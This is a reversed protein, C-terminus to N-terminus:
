ASNLIMNLYKVLCNYRESLLKDGDKKVQFNFYDEGKEGRLTCDGFFPVHITNWDLKYYFWWAGVLAILGYLLLRQRFRIGGGKSGIKLIGLMDDALGVLGAFVMMGLPIYTQERNLFNLKALESGPFLYALLAFLLAIGLTTGWVLIGGM